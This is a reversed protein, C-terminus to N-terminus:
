KQVPLHDCVIRQNVLSIKKMNEVLLESKINFGSEVDAQGHSLVFIIRFVNWLNVYNADGEM